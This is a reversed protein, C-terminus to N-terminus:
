FQLYSVLDSTINFNYNKTNILNINYNSVLLNYNKKIEFSNELNELFKSLSYAVPLKTRGIYSYDLNGNNSEVSYYPNNNVFNNHSFQPKSKSSFNNSFENDYKCFNGEFVYDYKDKSSYGVTIENNKSIDANSNSYNLFLDEFLENSSIRKFDLGSYLSPYPWKLSSLNDVCEKNLDIFNAFNNSHAYSFGVNSNFIESIKSNSLQLTDNNPLEKSTFPAKSLYNTNRSLNKYTWMEPICKFNADM